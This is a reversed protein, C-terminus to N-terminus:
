WRRWKDTDYALQTTTCRESRLIDVLWRLYDREKEERGANRQRSSKQQEMRIMRLSDSLRKASM